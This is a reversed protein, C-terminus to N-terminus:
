GLEVPEGKEASRRVAAVFDLFALEQKPEHIDTAQVAADVFGPTEDPWWAVDHTEGSKGTLEVVQRTPEVRLVAESGTAEMLIQAPAPASAAISAAFEITLLLDRAGRALIFWADDNAGFLSARTTQVRALPEDFLDFVFHLLPVGVSEFLDGTRQKVRHAAFIGYPKGPKGSRVDARFAELAAFGRLPNVQMVRGGALAARADGDTSTLPLTAVPLGSSTALKLAPIQNEGTALNIVLDAGAPISQGPEVVGAFRHVPSHRIESAMHQAMEGVGIVAITRSGSM